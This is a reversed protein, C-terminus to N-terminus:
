VHVSREAQRGLSVRRMVRAEDGHSERRKKERKRKISKEM